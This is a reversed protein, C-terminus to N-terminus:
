RADTVAPRYSVSLVNRHPALASRARGAGFYPEGSIRAAYWLPSTAWAIIALVVVATLVYALPPLFAPLAGAPPPMVCSLTGGPAAQIVLETGPAAVGFAVGYLPTGNSGKGQTPLLVATVVLYTNGWAFSPVDRGVWAAIADAWSAGLAPVTSTSYACISSAVPFPTSTPVTAPCGYAGVAYGLPLVAAFAQPTGAVASQLTVGTTTTGNTVTFTPAGTVLLYPVTTASAGAGVQAILVLADPSYWGASAAPLSTVGAGLLADSLRLFVAAASPDSTVGFTTDGGPGATTPTPLQVALLNGSAELVLNFPAISSGAPLRPLSVFGLDLSAVWAAYPPALPRPYVNLGCPPEEGAAAAAITTPTGATVDFEVNTASTGVSVWYSAM